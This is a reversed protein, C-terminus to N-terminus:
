QYFSEMLLAVMENSILPLFTNKVWFYVSEKEVIYSDLARPVTGAAYFM